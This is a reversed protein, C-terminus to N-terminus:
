MITTKIHKLSITTPQSESYITVSVLIEPFIFATIPFYFYCKYGM